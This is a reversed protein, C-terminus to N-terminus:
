DFIALIRNIKWVSDADSVIPRHFPLGQFSNGDEFPFVPSLFCDFQQPIDEHADAKGYAESSAIGVEEDGSSMRKCM